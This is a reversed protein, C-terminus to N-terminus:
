QQIFGHVWISATEADIVINDDGGEGYAIDQGEENEEGTGELEIDDDGPGAFIRDSGLGDTIADNGELGYINDDEDTGELTDPGSTGIL